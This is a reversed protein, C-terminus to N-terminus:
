PKLKPSSTLCAAKCVSVEGEEGNVYILMLDLTGKGGLTFAQLISHTLANIDLDM